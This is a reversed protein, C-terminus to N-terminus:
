EEWDMTKIEAVLMTEVLEESVGDAGTRCLEASDLLKLECDDEECVEDTAASVVSILAVWIM